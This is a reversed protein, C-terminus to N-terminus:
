THAHQQQEGNSGYGAMRRLFSSSSAAGNSATTSSSVGNRQQLGMSPPRSGPAAVIPEKADPSVRFHIIAADGRSAGGDKVVQVVGTQAGMAELMRTLRLTRWSAALDDSVIDLRGLESKPRTM